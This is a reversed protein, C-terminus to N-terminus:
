WEIKLGRRKQDPRLIYGMNEIQMQYEAFDDIELCKADGVVRVTDPKMGYRKLWKKRIRANKHWRAQVMANIYWEVTFVNSLPQMTAMDWLSTNIYSTDCSFNVNRHLGLHMSPTENASMETELTGTLCNGMLLKNGYQDQLLLNCNNVDIM